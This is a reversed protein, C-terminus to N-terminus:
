AGGRLLTLTPGENPASSPPRRHAYRDAHVRDWLQREHFRWYQDLDGSAKLARMKLVAEATALGWRAGTIDMRDKVLYRCTGEIIGSAIPTGSALYRDYHLFDRNNLLYDAAKFLRKRNRGKLNRKVASQKIGAAVDVAKGDLVKVLRETVIRETGSKGEGHVAITAKWLYEIVHIVDLIITLEVGAEEAFQRLLRLQTKNGDVVAVWRMKRDPDRRLAEEFMSAIVVEADDVVSAWVRKDKARPPTPTEVDRAPRLDRVIDAASRPHVSVTYVSAVTAMRRRHRKEGKSLRKRLKNSKGEAAQRTAERLGESRMNIGKGDVTLVLLDDVSPPHKGLQGGGAAYFLDFDEAARRVTEEAQRKPVQVGTTRAVAETADDFSGRIVEEVVRRELGFSYRTNPLNLEADMPALSDMGRGGLAVRVVNVLGFVCVLDRGRSRRHTRALGDAGVVELPPREQRTRLDLHGQFLRRTLERVQDVVLDEVESHTMALTPESTLMEKIERFKEDAEAFVKRFEIAQAQM